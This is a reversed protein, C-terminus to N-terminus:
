IMDILKKVIKQHEIEDNKIHEIQEVFGNKKLHMIIDECNDEAKKERKLADKLIDLVIERDAM